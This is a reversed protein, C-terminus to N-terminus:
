RGPASSARAAPAAPPVPSTTPPSASAARQATPSLALAASVRPEVARNGKSRQPHDTHRDALENRLNRIELLSVQLNRTIRRLQDAYLPDAPAGLDQWWNATSTLAEAIRDLVGNGPATLESLEAVVERTHCATRISRALHGLRDGLSLEYDDRIPLNHDILAPGCSIDFGRAQLMGVARTVAQRQEVPDTMAAPLRHFHERSRVVPIFGARHLIADAANQQGSRLPESRPPLGLQDLHADITALLRHTSGGYQAHPGGPESNYVVEHLTSDEPHGRTVLWSEPYGPPHDTAPEQPPSITLASGDPLEAHVIYDSLGYEVSCVLGRQRLPTTLYSYRHERDPTGPAVEPLLPGTARATVHTGERQFIVVIQDPRDEPFDTARESRNSSTPSM